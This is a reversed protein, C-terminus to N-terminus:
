SYSCFQEVLNCPELTLVSNVLFRTLYRVRVRVRLSVLDKSGVQVKIPSVTLLLALYPYDM